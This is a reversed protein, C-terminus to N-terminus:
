MLGLFKKRSTPPGDLPPMQDMPPLDNMPSFQGQNFNMSPITNNPQMTPPMMTRNNINNVSSPNMQVNNMMPPQMSQNGGQMSTKAVTLNDNIALLAKAIMENQELLKDLKETPKSAQYEEIIDKQADDLITILRNVSITLRDMSDILAHGKEGDTLSGRKIISLEKRLDDIEHKPMLEYDDSDPGNDM